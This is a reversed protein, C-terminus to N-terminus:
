ASLTSIKCSTYALDMCESLLGITWERQDDVPVFRMKPGHKAESLLEQNLSTLTNHLKEETRSPELQCGTESCTKVHFFSSDPRIRVQGGETAM